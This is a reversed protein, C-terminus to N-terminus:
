GPIGLVVIWPDGKAPVRSPKKYHLPVTRNYLPTQLTAVNEPLLEEYVSMNDRNLVHVAVLPIEKETKAKFLKQAYDIEAGSEEYSLSYSGRGASFNLCKISYIVARGAVTKCIFDPKGKGGIHTVAPYVAQLRPLLFQEYTNGLKENVMGAVERRIQGVRTPSIKFKVVFEEATHLPDKSATYIELDRAINPDNTAEQRILALIPAEDTSFKQSQSETEPPRTSVEPSQSETEATETEDAMNKARFLDVVLQKIIEEQSTSVAVEAEMFYATLAKKSPNSPDHPWHRRLAIRLIRRAFGKLKKLEEKTQAGTGGRNKEIQRFNKDKAKKYEAEFEPPISGIDAEIYGLLTFKQTATPRDEKLQYLLVRSKYEDRAAGTLQGMPRLFTVMGPLMKVHPACIIISKQTYRMTEVLNQLEAEATQAGRGILRSDEDQMIIDGDEVQALTNQSESSNFTFEIKIDRSGLEKMKLKWRLALWLAIYSKGEGQPGEVMIILNSPRMVRRDLFEEFTPNICRKQAFFFEDDDLAVQTFMMERLPDTEWEEFVKKMEKKRHKPTYKMKRIKGPDSWM